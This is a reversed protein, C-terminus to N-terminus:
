AVCEHFINIKKVARLSIYITNVEFFYINEINKVAAM